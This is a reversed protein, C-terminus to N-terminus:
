KTPIMKLLERMEQVKPMYAPDSALNKLENPDVLHDTLMEGAMGDDWSVYHWKETSVSKGLKEQYLVVSFAPHNWSARPNRLLSTLSHGELKAPHKYPQQLQCLEVLTPYIDLLQVTRPSVGAKTNPAVIIFPVRTAIEFLSYAKSWKGKEGLHYGHDGWFVIITKDRLKLRDLADIVRGIQEDMFSVSAYYARIMERADAASAERGIFLDTNRRAISIEPFGPPAVPRSSFDVPLPIREPDYLDFFKKPASPPSHPKASGIALFFPRDKYKELLEIARSAMRYDESNEGNGELTVIRDSHAIRQASDANSPPRRAGAFARAEGGETWAETDDIGGHFIKGSRLTVYGNAKFHQPLSVFEPHLARFYLENNMVDTQTPYRGTLLSTRSPNCLPYQTYARDFRIGRAALKDINPTKVIENGYCGLTPRLDDSAILIVNYKPASATASSLHAIQVYPVSVFVLAIVLFYRLKKMKTRIRIECSRSGVLSDSLM